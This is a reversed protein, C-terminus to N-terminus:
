LLERMARVRMRTMRERAIRRAKGKREIGKERRMNTRMRDEREKRKMLLLISLRNGKQHGPYTRRLGMVQRTSKTM